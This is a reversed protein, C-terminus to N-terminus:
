LETSVRASILWFLSATLCLVRPVVVLRQEEAARRERASLQALKGDIETTRISGNRSLQEELASSRQKAKQLEARLESLTTQHRVSKGRPSALAHALARDLNERIETLCKLEERASALEGQLGRTAAAAEETRQGSLQQLQEHQCRLSDLERELAEKNATVEAIRDASEQLKDGFAKQEQERQRKRELLCLNATALEAAVAQAQGVAHAAKEQEMLVARRQQDRSLAANQREAVLAHELASVRQHWASEERQQRSQLEEDDVPVSRSLKAELVQMQQAQKDLLAQQRELEKSTAEIRAESQQLLATKSDAATSATALKLTLQAVDESRVKLDHHLSRLTGQVQKNDMHAAKLELRLSDVAQQAQSLQKTVVKLQATAAQVQTDTKAAAQAQRQGAEDEKARLLRELEQKDRRLQAKDQAAALELTRYREVTSALSSQLDAARMELAEAQNVALM